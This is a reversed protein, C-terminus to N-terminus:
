AQLKETLPALSYEMFKVMKRKSIARLHWMQKDSVWKGEWDAEGSVGESMWESASNRKWGFETCM